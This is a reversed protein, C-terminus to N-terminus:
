IGGAVHDNLRPKEIGYGQAYDVGVRRLAELIADNEVFEAITEIKMVHGIHNIAEVMAHDIPDEIMDKVFSGDIKLYDVPLHKLYAFSSMGSGFDDLSFRCGVEKLKLILVAAHALNTIASTETIEFCIGGPPIKFLDFQATVFEHFREDCITAGSLNIACTGLLSGPPHRRGYQAFATTIVWRDIQPMLGYREAAPIFAMPPVLEGDEDKLRLLVEYHEGANPDDTLPLIKQSYLVFRNEELARQIRGVWGMEGHRQAIGMDEVTYVQIRNRGKDKALYCAADAMRMLDPLTQSGDGFTVLGISLALQFTEGKWMFHFDHVAQRLQEAVGLAADTGCGELLVDFEDGGVRALTDNVRLHAQLIDTLQRLLEDGALHGCTDNIIKFQDIDLNLLTHQKGDQKGTLLAHALRREFERRDILGTLADHSSQFTMCAAMKLAQTVDHFILIAGVIKGHQDRLPAAADEISLTRGSRQILVTHLAVGVNTKGQYILEVPNPSSDETNSPIINFVEPLFHAKAEQTTWGTMSEAVPNLYMVRGSMDTTIVADEVHNLTIRLREKEEFLAKEIHRGRTIDHRLETQIEESRTLSVDAEKALRHADALVEQTDFLEQVTGILERNLEESNDIEQALAKNAAHIQQTLAENVEQLDDACGLVKEEVKENQELTKKVQASTDGATMGTKVTENITSLEAACEAIKEEVLQNKELAQELSPAKDAPLSPLSNSNM